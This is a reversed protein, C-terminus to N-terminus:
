RRTRMLDGQGCQRTKQICIIVNSGTANRPFPVGEPLLLDVDTLGDPIETERLVVYTRGNGFAPGRVQGAAKWAGIEEATARRVDGRARLQDLGLEMPLLLNPDRKFPDGRDSSYFPRPDRAELRDGVLIRGQEDQDSVGLPTRQFLNQSLAEAQIQAEDRWDLGDFEPSGRYLGSQMNCAAAEPLTGNFVPVFRPLGLVQAPYLGALVVGALKAGSTQGIRWQIPQFNSLLLVVPKATRAVTIDVRSTYYHNRNEIRTSAILKGAYVGIPKVWFDDPLGQLGCPALTAPTSWAPLESNRRYELPFIPHEADISESGPQPLPDPRGVSGGGYIFYSTGHVISFARDTPVRVQEIGDERMSFEVGRPVGGVWAALHGAMGAAFGAVGAACAALLIAGFSSRM